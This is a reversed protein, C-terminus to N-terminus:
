RKYGSDYEAIQRRTKKVRFIYALVTCICYFLIFLVYPPFLFVFVAGFILQFVMEKKYKAIKKILRRRGREVGKDTNEIKNRM